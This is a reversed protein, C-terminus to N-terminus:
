LPRDCTLLICDNSSEDELISLGEEMVLGEDLWNPHSWMDDVEARMRRHLPNSARSLTAKTLITVLYLMVFETSHVSPDAQCQLLPM